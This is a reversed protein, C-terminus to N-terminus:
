GSVSPDYDPGFNNIIEVDDLQVEKHDTEVIINLIDLFDDLDAYDPHTITTKILLYTVIKEKM